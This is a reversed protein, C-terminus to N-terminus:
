AALELALKKAAVSKTEGEIILVGDVGVDLTLPYHRLDVPLERGLETRVQAILKERTELKRNSRNIWTSGSQRGSGAGDPM